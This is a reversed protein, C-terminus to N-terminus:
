SAHNEHQQKDFLVKFEPDSTYNNIYKSLEVPQLQMTVLLTSNGPQRSLMYALKNAVTKNYKIIIDFLQVYM